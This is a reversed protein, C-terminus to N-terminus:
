TRDRHRVSCAGNDRSLQSPSGYGVRFAAQAADSEEGPMM